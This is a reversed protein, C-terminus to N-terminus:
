LVLWGDPSFAVANVSSPHSLTQLHVSWDDSRAPARVIWKPLQHMYLRRIISAESRFVLTITLKSQTCGTEEWKAEESDYPKARAHLQKHQEEAIFGDSVPTKICCPVDARQHSKLAGPKDFYKFCRPCFGEM